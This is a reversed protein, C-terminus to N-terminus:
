PSMYGVTGLIAGGTTARGTLTPSHTLDVGSDVPERAKALGFDLAKITGDPRLKVNAPKLDRHIVGHEHAAALAHAIQTGISRAETWSIPGRALREALDEGEIYEMVLLHQGEIEELGYLTAINPHNLSALLKAEREFRARREADGAFAEPLVKLAVERGLSTDTARWVEGMGGEGVPSVIEYRGVKSGIEM